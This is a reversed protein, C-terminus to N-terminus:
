SKGTAMKSFLEPHDKVLHIPERVDSYGLTAESSSLDRLAMSLVPPLEHSLRPLVSVAGALCALLSNAYCINDENVMGVRLLRCDHPLPRRGHVASIDDVFAQVDDLIVVSQDELGQVAKQSAAGYASHEEREGGENRRQYSELMVHPMSESAPCPAEYGRHNLECLHGSNTFCDHGRVQQYPTPMQGEGSRTSIDTALDRRSAQQLGGVDTDKWSTTAGVSRAKRGLSSRLLVEGRQACHSISRKHSIRKVVRYPSPTTCVDAVQVHCNEATGKNQECRRDHM